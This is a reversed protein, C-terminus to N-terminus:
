STIKKHGTKHPAEPGHWIGTKLWVEYFGLWAATLPIIIKSIYKHPSWTRDKPFYLCLDGQPYVHPANPDLEPSLVCVKPQKSFQNDFRYEIRIRYIAADDSPQLTGTWTPINNVRGYKFDPFDFNM